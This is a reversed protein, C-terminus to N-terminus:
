LLKLTGFYKGGTSGWLGFTYNDLWKLLKSIDPFLTLSSKFVSCTRSINCDALLITYFWHRMYLSVAYETLYNNLRSFSYLTGKIKSDWLITCM